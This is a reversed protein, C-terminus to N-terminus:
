QFTVSGLISDVTARAQPSKKWVAVPAYTIVCLSHGGGVITVNRQRWVRHGQIPNDYRVIFASDLARRDAVVGGVFDYEYQVQPATDMPPALRELMCTVHLSDYGAEGARYLFRVMLDGAVADLAETNAPSPRVSWGEPTRFSFAGSPHKHDQTLAAPEPRSKKGALTAPTWGGVLAVALLLVRALGSMTSNPRFM